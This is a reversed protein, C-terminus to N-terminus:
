YQVVIQNNIGRIGPLRSIRAQAEAKEAESSAIGRLTVYGRQVIPYIRSFKDTYSRGETLVDQIQLSLRSDFEQTFVTDQGPMQGRGPLGWETPDIPKGPRQDTSTEYPHGPLQYELPNVPRGPLQSGSYDTSANLANIHLILLVSISASFVSSSSYKM